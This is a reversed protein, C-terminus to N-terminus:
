AKKQAPVKESEKKQHNAFLNVGHLMLNLVLVPIGLAFSDGVNEPYNEMVWARIEAKKRKAKSFHRINDIVFTKLWERRADDEVVRVRPHIEKVIVLPSPNKRMNFYDRAAVEAKGRRSLISTSM